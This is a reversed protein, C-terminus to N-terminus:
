TMSLIFHKKKFLAEEFLVKPAGALKRIAANRQNKTLNPLRPLVIASALSLILLVIVLEILTFGREIRKM